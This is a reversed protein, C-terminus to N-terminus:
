RVEAIEASMSGRTNQVLPIDPKVMLWVAAGLVASAATVLLGKQWGFATVVWATTIPAAVGGMNGWLPYKSLAVSRLLNHNSWPQL